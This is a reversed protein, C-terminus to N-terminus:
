SLKEWYIIGIVGDCSRWYPLLVALDKLFGNLGCRNMTGDQILRLPQM